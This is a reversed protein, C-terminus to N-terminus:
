GKQPPIRPIDNDKLKGHEQLYTRVWLESLFRLVSMLEGLHAKVTYRSQETLKRDLTLLRTDRDGWSSNCLVLFMSKLNAWIVQQLIFTTTQVKKLWLFLVTAVLVTLLCM